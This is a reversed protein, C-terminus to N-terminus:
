QPRRSNRVRDFEAAAEDLSLGTDRACCSVLLQRVKWANRGILSLERGSTPRAIGREDLRSCVSRDYEECRREYEEAADVFVRATPQWEAMYESAFSNPERV